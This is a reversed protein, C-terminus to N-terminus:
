DPINQDVYARAKEPTNITSAFESNRIAWSVHDTVFSQYNDGPTYDDDMLGLKVSVRRVLEPDGTMLAAQYLKHKDDDSMSSASSSSSRSSNDNDNTASNDNSNSNRNTIININDDDNRNTSYTANYAFYYILVGAIAVVILGLCGAGGCGLAIKQNRTM